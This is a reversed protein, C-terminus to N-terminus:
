HTVGTQRMGLGRGRVGSGMLDGGMRVMMVLMGLMYDLSGNLGSSWSGHLLRPRYGDRIRLRLTM